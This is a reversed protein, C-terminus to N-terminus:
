QFPCGGLRDKPADSARDANDSNVRRFYALAATRGAMAIAILAPFAVGVARPMRPNVASKGDKQAKDHAACEGGCEAQDSLLRVM